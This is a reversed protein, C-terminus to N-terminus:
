LIPTLIKLCCMDCMASTTVFKCLKHAFITISHLRYIFFNLAFLKIYITELLELVSVSHNLNPKEFSFTGTVVASGSAIKIM